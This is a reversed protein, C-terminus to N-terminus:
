PLWIPFIRTLFLCCFGAGAVQKEEGWDGKLGGDYYWSTHNEEYVNDPVDNLEQPDAVFNDVVAYGNKWFYDNLEM